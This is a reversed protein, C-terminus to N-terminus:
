DHPVEKGKKVTRKRKRKPALFTIQSIHHTTQVSKLREYDGSSLQVRVTIPEAQEWSWPRMLIEIEEM